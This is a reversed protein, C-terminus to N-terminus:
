CNGSPAALADVLHRARTEEGLLADVVPGTGPDAPPEGGSRSDPGPDPARTPDPGKSEDVYQEVPRADSTMLGPGDGTTLASHVSAYDIGLRVLREGGAYRSGLGSASEGALHPYQLAVEHTALVALLVHETGVADSGLRRAQEYTEMRVWWAPRAAWNVGSLKLLWRVWFPTRRYHSHGLLVDRTPHLLPDLGDERSATGGDLRALVAQPAIGCTGLAEVARNDGELLGRLLHEAGFKGADERRAQAMAATLARAAAGTYRTHQEGEEGLIDKETVTGGADDDASWADDRGMRDRLVALLVVKTAGEAALAERAEGKATTIGALLHESGIPGRAGSRAGRAAGLVGVINWDPSTTAEM